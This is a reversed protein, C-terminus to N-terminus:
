HFHYNILIFTSHSYDILTTHHPSFPSLAQLDTLLSIFSLLTFMLTASLDSLDPIIWPLPCWHLPTLIYFYLFHLYLYHWLPLPRLRQLQIIIPNPLSDATLHSTLFPTLDSTPLIPPWLHFQTDGSLITIYMASLGITTLTVITPLYTISCSRLNYSLSVRLQHLLLSQSYYKYLLQHTHCHVFPYSYLPLIFFIFHVTFCVSWIWMIFFPINSHYAPEPSQEPYLRVITGGRRERITLM